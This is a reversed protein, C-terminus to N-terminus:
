VESHQQSDLTYKSFLTEFDGNPQVLVVTSTLAAQYNLETRPHDLPMVWVRFGVKPKAADALKMYKVVPKNSEQNM